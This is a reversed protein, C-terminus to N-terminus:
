VNNNQRIMGRYNNNNEPLGQNYIPNIYRNSNDNINNENINHYLNYDLDMFKRRSGCSSSQSRNIGNNFLYQNYNYDIMPNLIPNNQLNSRGLDYNKSCFPNVEVFQNRNISSYQPVTDYLGKNRFSSHSNEINKEDYKENSLKIPIQQQIQRDLLDKYLKKKENDMLREEKELNLLRQNEEFRKEEQIAREKNKMEKNQIRKEALLKNYNNYEKYLNKYKNYSPNYNMLNNENYVFNPNINRYQENNNIKQSFSMIRNNPITKNIEKDCSYRKSLYNYHKDNKAKENYEMFLKRNRDARESLKLIKNHYSNLANDSDLPLSVDLPKLKEEFEKQIKNEKAQLGALYEQYQKQILLRKREEEQKKDLLIEQQERFLEERESQLQKERESFYKQKQSQIEQDYDKSLSDRVYAPTNITNNM